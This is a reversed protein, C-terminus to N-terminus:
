VFDAVEGDFRIVVADPQIAPELAVQRLDAEARDAFPRAGPLDTDIAAPDLWLIAEGLALLNAHRGAAVRRVPLGLGLAFQGLGFAFLRGVHQHRLGLARQDDVLGGAEGSLAPGVREVMDVTQEIGIHFFALFLAGAEDVPEVLIGGADQQHGACGSARRKEGLPEGAAAGLLDVPRQDHAHGVNAFAHDLCRQGLLGTRAALLHMDIVFAAGRGLGLVANDFARALLDGPEFQLRQRAAGVLQAHMARGHSVRDHAIAFIAALVCEEGARDAALHMEVGAPQDDVAGIALEIHGGLQGFMEGGAHLLDAEVLLHAVGSGHTVIRWGGRALFLFLLRALM